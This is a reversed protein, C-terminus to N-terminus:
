RMDVRFRNDILAIPANGRQSLCAIRASRSQRRKGKTGPKRFAKKLPDFRVSSDVLECRANPHVCLYLYRYTYTNSSTHM